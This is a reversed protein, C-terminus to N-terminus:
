TLLLINDETMKEVPLWHLDTETYKTDIKTVAISFKISEGFSLQRTFQSTFNLVEGKGPNSKPMNESLIFYYVRCM